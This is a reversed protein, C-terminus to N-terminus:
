APFDLKRIIEAIRRDGRVPDIFPDVKLGALGPSRLVFSRELEAAALDAQGRLGHVQAKRYASSDGYRAQLAGLLEDSQAAQGTVGALAARGTLGLIHDDPLKAYEAAAQPYRRLLLLANGLIARVFTRDPNIALSHRACDIAEAFRHAYFRVAAEAEYVGDSLPDLSAAETASAWAEDARGLQALFIALVLRSLVNRGPLRAAEQMQSLAARFQLRYKFNVGLESYGDSFRPAIAIARRAAQEAQVLYAQSETPGHAFTAALYNLASARHSYAAAYHPDLAIAAASLQFASRVGQESDTGHLPSSKLLLDQAAQVRTGGIALAAKDADGLQISLAAAVTAAIRTQLALPDRSESDFTQSWRELGTQGDVLQASVRVLAPSRRVSGTLINDVGLMRAATKVDTDRVAESSTRAVVLLHPIRSLASRLEEAIGDSFYAQGPDGSLNAFPLVAIRGVGPSAPFWHRWTLAGAGLAAVTAAAGGALVVRRSASRRAIDPGPERPAGGAKAHLAGLLARYRPDARDGRWALLSIAQSEGFGLPMAVKDITVPLYANRDLARRAEDRVFRGEPATSRKSWVVIVTTASDLQREITDRWNDGGSLHVDWWVAYGDATLADVLPQVRKRDEVKYSVFIHGM